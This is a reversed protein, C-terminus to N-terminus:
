RGNWHKSAVVDGNKPDPEMGKYIEAGWSGKEYARLKQNRLQSATIHHWGDYVGDEYQQHLGYYIPIHLSRAIDILEQIHKVTETEKLSESVFPYLKGDQHLFDNYPDILVVATHSHASM